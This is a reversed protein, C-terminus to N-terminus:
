PTFRHTCPFKSKSSWMGPISQTLSLNEILHNAVWFITFTVCLECTFHNGARLLYIIKHRLHLDVNYGHFWLSKFVFSFRRYMSDNISMKLLKWKSTGRCRLSDDCTAELLFRIKTSCPGGSLSWLSLLPSNWFSTM